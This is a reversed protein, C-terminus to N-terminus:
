KIIWMYEKYLNEADSMKDMIGDEKYGIQGKIKTDFSTRSTIIADVFAKKYNLDRQNTQLATDRVWCAIALAMVLDDNYGKLAQPKGNTWIFTRLENALRSSYTTILKNRIFEELKAVVLPRTKSSTTFGPVASSRHEAMHQEIYEHTSKVSYYINPYAYDILKDLVTYGISNNEIVVMANGYERGIQNLMNAYLDPTPKGQYEGIIQMTELKIIHFTSYDAGDGRAVDATLLYSCSPDHEEWIWFNRDFATRYKPETVNGGIWELADPGIVTEGSTNFNCELEQAIQRRSMNRTEKKFWEENREPHVDWMLTTLKFNNEKTEAGICTKHFWNGVGNPTSIAICRGGTSLTPYLGTWLDELGDIHAAEDLVLLSLAESRGADGSTSAAKITSGNSLEFSTRNDTSISAIRIWDPLNKMISKVKRVLNGATEFKTAMVLISKDRHFLMMWVIYGATLTSIGLQRGKNIVNFRYDNFDDLLLDQYDFTNFLILGHMPHSIRAYTKLFYSPDKGCKVVEKLIEKKTLKFSM